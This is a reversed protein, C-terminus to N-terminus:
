KGYVIKNLLTLLRPLELHSLKVVGDIIIHTKHVGDHECVEVRDLLKATERM